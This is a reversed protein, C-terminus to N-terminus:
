FIFLCFLVILVIIFPTFIATTIQYRMEMPCSFFIAAHNYASIFADMSVIADNIFDM